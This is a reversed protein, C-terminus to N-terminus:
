GYFRILHLLWIYGLLKLSLLGASLNDLMEEEWVFHLSTTEIFNPCVIPLVQMIIFIVPRRASLILKTPM